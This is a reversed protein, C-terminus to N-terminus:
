NNYKLFYSYITLIKNVLIKRQIIASKVNKYFIIKVNNKAKM